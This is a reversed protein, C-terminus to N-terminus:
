KHGAVEHSVEVAAKVGDYVAHQVLVEPPLVLANHHRHTCSADEELVAGVVCRLSEFTFRRREHGVIVLDLHVRDSGSSM